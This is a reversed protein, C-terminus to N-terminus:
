FGILTPDIQGYAMSSRDVQWLRRIEMEEAGDIIRKKTALELARVNELILARARLTFPGLGDSGNRRRHCRMSPDNRIESLWRRFEYFPKLSAYGSEILHEASKDRRVVTCTWCGFRASACPKDNTERVIPCEGGGDRYIAALRTADISRPFELEVLATWVQALDFEVIPSYIHTNCGGDIQRRIFPRNKDGGQMRRDRQASEGRRTGLVVLPSDGLQRLYSQVPRIRLDKTCWRFFQTPPPYGRGIVRVFFRQDLRPRVVQICDPLGIEAMEKGLKKLTQLVFASVIPNEVGTDCYVIKIDRRPQRAKKLANAVLKVVASSDKGGSYAVFIHGNWERLVNSIERVKASLAKQM